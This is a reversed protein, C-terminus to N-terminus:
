EDTRRRPERGSLSASLTRSWWLAVAGFLMDITMGLLRAALPVLLPLAGHTKVGILVAMISERVGIGGPVIIALFGAVDGLLFSGMVLPIERPTLSFGIGLCVLYTSLSAAATALMQVGHLEVLLRLPFEFNPVERKLLRSLWATGWRLLPRHFLIAIVDAAVLATGMLALLSSSVQTSALGLLLVGSFAAIALALALNLLNAYLVLSKQLGASALWYMQLAYSWVKGPLYKTLGSSNVAAFSESFTLPRRQSLGNITRQWGYTSLLSSAAACLASLTLWLYNPEFHAARISQWNDRFARYFFIGILALVVLTIAYKLVARANPM